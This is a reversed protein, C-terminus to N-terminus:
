KEKNKAIFIDKLKITCILINGVKQGIKSFRAM